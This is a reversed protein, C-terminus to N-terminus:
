GAAGLGQVALRLNDKSNAIVDPILVSPESWDTDIEVAELTQMADSAVVQLMVQEFQRLIADMTEVALLNGDFTTNVRIVDESSKISFRFPSHMTIGTWLLEMGIGEGWTNTIFSSGASVTVYIAADCAARTDESLNKINDWGLHEFNAMAYLDRQSSYLLDRIKRGAKIHFRHPIKTMAPAIMEEIGPLPLTRGTRYQSFVVEESQLHRSFVIAMAVEAMTSITIESTQAKQISFTRALNVDAVVNHSAPLWFSEAPTPDALVTHKIFQNFKLGQNPSAENRFAHEMDAYLMPVASKEDDVIAFRTILDGYGIHEEEDHKLFGELSTESHWELKSKMVVQFNRGNCIQVIRTRLVAHQSAAFDWAAKFKVVDIHRPLHFVCQLFYTNEPAAFYDQHTSAPYVDEIQTKSFQLPQLVRRLDDESVLSYPEILPLAEAASTSLAMEALVPHESIKAVTLSLGKARATSVLKMAAISDGGLHFFNDQAEFNSGGLVTQWLVSLQHEKTTLERHVKEGTFSELEAVSLAAAINRLKKRDLKGSIAFPFSRVPILFTPIAYSPLVLSLTATAQKALARLVRQQGPSTMVSPGDQEWNLYGAEEAMRLFAMLTPSGSNAVPAVVEVIVETAAPCAKQLQHEVEGMELRHGRIKVQSDKRGVFSMTGDGNYKVLDGTRYLRGQRGTSGMWLPPSIFAQQTKLDDNLYGRGVTPGEILLEGVAGLPMLRDPDNEDAIWAGVFAKGLDGPGHKSSSYDLATIAVACETPGYMSYLSLKTKWKNILDAPVSEGGLIVRELGGVDQIEINRFLSPTFFATNVQMRNIAGSLNNMRDWDSPICVCGGFILTYMIEIICADFAYSIFQLMRPPKEFGIAKGGLVASTCLQEHEIVCGKPQGTSGSTFIVYAANSPTAETINATAPFPSIASEDVVLVEPVIEECLQAYKPSSLVLGARTQEIIHRLRSQPQTPDLSVFAGGAKLVALMSVIIWKSKEFCLPVLIEPGVGQAALNHALRSALTDLERYSLDGDWACVAPQNPQELVRRQILDHALASIPKPINGNWCLIQEMDALCPISQKEAMTSM